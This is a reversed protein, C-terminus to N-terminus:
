IPKIYSAIPAAEPANAAATAENPLPKLLLSKRALLGYVSGFFPPSLGKQPRHILGLALKLGDKFLSFPGGFPTALYPRWVKVVEFGFSELIRRIAGLPPYIQHFPSWLRHQPGYVRAALSRPNILGTILILGGPALWNLARTLFIDPRPLHDLTQNLIIAGLPDRAFNLDEAWANVVKLGQATLIQSAALNPEVALKPFSDPIEKLMRGAGAGIDVILRGELLLPILAKAYLRWEPKKQDAREIPALARGEPDISTEWLDLRSFFTQCLKPGPHPNVQWTGCHACSVLNFDGTLSVNRARFAYRPALPGQGCLRCGPTKILDVAM